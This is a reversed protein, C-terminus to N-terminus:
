SQVSSKNSRTHHQTIEKLSGPDRNKFANASIHLNSSIHLNWKQLFDAHKRHSEFRRDKSLCPDEESIKGLPIQQM